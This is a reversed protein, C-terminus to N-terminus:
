TTTRDYAAVAGNTVASDQREVNARPPVDVMVVDSDEDNAASVSNALPTNLRSGASKQQIKKLKGFKGSATRRKELRAMKAEYNDRYGTLHEHWVVEEGKPSVSHLVNLQELSMREMDIDSARSPSRTSGNIMHRGNDTGNTLVSIAKNTTGNTPAGRPPEAVTVSDPVDLISVCHKCILADIIGGKRLEQVKQRLADIVGEPTSVDIHQRVFRVLSDGVHIDASVGERRIHNDLQSLMDIADQSRGDERYGEEQVQVLWDEDLEDDSESLMDGEAIAQKSTTRFLTVGDPAAPVRHKKKVPPVVPQVDEPAKRQPALPTSPRPLNKQPSHKGRGTKKREPLPLEGWDQEGSLYKSLVFSHQPAIWDMEKDQGQRRSKSPQWD